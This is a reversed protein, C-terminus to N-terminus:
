EAANEEAPAAAEETEEGELLARMSLSVRNKENDIATIKVDVKDGVKLVSAPNPVFKKGIQSCHILGDVGPIIEAFAGFPMLSVITVNVVDGENFKQNFIYWPNTEETKYGLSIRERERDIDKIFVEVTDGVKFVDAPNRPVGWFIESVHIMGDAAGLNVFVGFNTISRVTGTMKQGVEISSYFENLRAQREVRAASRISGVARKRQANYELIKVPVKTNKLAELDTGERGCQAAPVFVRIGSVNVIVGGKVVEKVTGHLIEGNEAADSVMAANKAEDLRKKSLMVTGEVDSFKTCVVEIADGVHFADMDVNGDASIEDYPLIGTHKTGLDVKIEAPTIALITGTVREGTTLTKFSQNLLEAFSLEENVTDTMAKKVEQIIIGPTSAGAIIVTNQKNKIRDKYPALGEANETLFTDPCNAKAIDFLKMTNSSKTSGVVVVADASKSLENAESQRMETVSCITDFSKGNTYLNKLNNKFKKWELTSFTTQSVSFHRKGDSELEKVKEAASDASHFTFYGNAAFSRIGRVEPHNEDGLIVCVSGDASNDRVISHIKKVYTCTADVFRHRGSALKEYVSKEEGHARIFIVGDDPVSDIDDATIIKVGREGLSKNYINNHIIEGICYVKEGKELEAELLSVARKVGPCFGAKSAITIEAM